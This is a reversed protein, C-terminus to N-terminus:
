TLGYKKRLEELVINQPIGQNEDLEYIGKEIGQKQMDTLQEWEDTSDKGRIFNLFIGYLEELNEKDMADIQRFLKVKIESADM